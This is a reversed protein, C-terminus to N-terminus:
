MGVPSSRWFVAKVCMEMEFICLYKSGPGLIKTELPFDSLILIPVMTELKNIWFDKM